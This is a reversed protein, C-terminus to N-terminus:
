HTLLFGTLFSQGETSLQNRLSNIDSGTKPAVNITTPKTLFEPEAREFTALLNQGEIVELKNALVHTFRPRRKRVETDSQAKITFLQSNWKWRALVPVLFTPDFHLLPFGEEVKDNVESFDVGRVELVAMPTTGNMGIGPRVRQNQTLETATVVTPTQAHGNREFAPLAGLARGDTEELAAEQSSVFGYNAYSKATTDPMGSLESLAWFNSDGCSYQVGDVVLACGNKPHRKLIWTNSKQSDSFYFSRPIQNITILYEGQDVWLIEYPMKSNSFGWAHGKVRFDKQSRLVQPQFRFIQNAKPVFAFSNLCVFFLSVWFLKLGPM